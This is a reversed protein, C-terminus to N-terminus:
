KLGIGVFISISCGLMVTGYLFLMATHLITKKEQGESLLELHGYDFSFTESKNPLASSWLYLLVEMLCHFVILSVMVWIMWMDTFLKSHPIFFGTMINVVALIRGSEGVLRHAWNFITRNGSDPGPRFFAMIPMVLAIAMVFIGIIAHCSQISLAGTGLETFRKMFCFITIFGCITLAVVLQM